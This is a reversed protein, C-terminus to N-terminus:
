FQRLWNVYLERKENTVRESNYVLQIASKVIQQPCYGESKTSLKLLLEAQLALSIKDLREGAGLMNEITLMSPIAVQLM